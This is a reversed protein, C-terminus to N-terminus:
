RRGREYTELQPIGAYTDSLIVASTDDVYEVVVLYRQWSGDTGDETYSFPWAWKNNQCGDDAMHFVDRLTLGTTVLDGRCYLQLVSEGHGENVFPLLAARVGDYRLPPTEGQYEGGLLHIRTQVAQIM